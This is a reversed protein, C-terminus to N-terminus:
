DFYSLSRQQLIRGIVRAGDLVVYDDTGGIGFYKSTPALRLDSMLCQLASMAPHVVGAVVWSQDLLSGRLPRCKLQRIATSYQTM